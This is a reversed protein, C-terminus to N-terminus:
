RDLDGAAQEPPMYNPTGIAQGPTTAGMSFEPGLPAGPIPQALPDDSSALRKALGWDLVIVEGFQGLIVNQGRSIM